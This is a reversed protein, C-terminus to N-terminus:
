DDISGDERCREYERMKNMDNEEIGDRECPVTETRRSSKEKSHRGGADLTGRQDKLDQRQNQCGCELQRHEHQFHLNHHKWGGYAQQDAPVNGTAAM